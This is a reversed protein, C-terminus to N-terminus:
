GSESRSESIEAWDLFIMLIRELSGIGGSGRFTGDAVACHLWDSDSVRESVTTFPRGSLPTDKIEVTFMWGPNDVTELTIGYTHEWDGNCESAFWAELRALCNEPKGSVNKM